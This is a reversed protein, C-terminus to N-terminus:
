DFRPNYLFLATKMRATAHQVLEIGKCPLYLLWPLKSWWDAHTKHIQRLSKVMDRWTDQPPHELLVLHIPATPALAQNMNCITPNSEGKANGKTVLETMYKISLIELHLYTASPTLSLASGSSWWM